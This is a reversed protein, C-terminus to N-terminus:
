GVRVDTSLVLVEPTRLPEHKSMGFQDDWGGAVSIGSAASKTSRHGASLPTKRKPIPILALRRTSSSHNTILVNWRFSQAVQVEEPGSVSLTLQNATREIEQPAQPLADPNPSGVPPPSKGLSGSRGRAGHRFPSFDVNTRWEITVLPQCQDSLLVRGIAKIHVAHVLSEPNSGFSRLRSPSLKYLFSIQDGPRGTLPTSIGGQPGYAEVAGEPMTLESEELRVDSAAFPTIEFDLSAILTPEKLSQNVRSFRLRWLIAPAARFLRRHGTRLPRMLEQASPTPATIATIRSSSLYPAKDPSAPNHAFSQLLNAPGPALSPMYEDELDQPAVEEVPKMSAAASFYIALRQLRTRPRGIFVDVSWVVYSHHYSSDASPVDVVYSPKEAGTLSKSFITEKAQQPPPPPPQQNDRNENAPPVPTGLAHGELTIALRSVYARLTNEDVIPSRLVV